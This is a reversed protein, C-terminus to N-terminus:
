KIIAGVIKAQEMGSGGITQQLFPDVRLRKIGRKLFELDEKEMENISELFSNDNGYSAAAKKLLEYTVLDDSAPSVKMDRLIPDGKIMRVINDMPLREILAEDSIKAQTNPVSTQQKMKKNKKVM